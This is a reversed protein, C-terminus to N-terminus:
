RSGFPRRRLTARVPVETPRRRAVLGNLFLSNMARVLRLLRPREQEFLWPPSFTAYARQLLEATPQTDHAAFEGSRAGQELLSAVLALEEQQFRGWATKVASASCLVLDCSHAGQDALELLAMVRAELARCLRDAVSGDERAAARMAALVREHRSQALESVIEDKSCFELYVSGVGIGAERAIDGITTKAPGYHRFLREAAGLIAERRDADTSKM